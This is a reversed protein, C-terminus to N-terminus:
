RYLAKVRSWTVPETPTPDSSIQGRIEGGPRFTTHINFYTLGGRLMTVHSATLPLDAMYTGMTVGGPFGTFPIIVGAPVGPGAPGHIHAATTPGILGSWSVEVHIMTEANNLIVIGDGMAPTIVPPVEQAGDLHGSFGSEAWTAAAGILLLASSLLVIRYSLKM